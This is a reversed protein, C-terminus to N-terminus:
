SREGVLLLLLIYLVVFGGDEEGVGGGWGVWGLGGEVDSGDVSRQQGYWM